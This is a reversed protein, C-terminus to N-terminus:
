KDLKKVETPKTSSSLYDLDLPDSALYLAATMALLSRIRPRPNKFRGTAVFREMLNGIATEFEEGVPGEDNRIFLFTLEPEEAEWSPAAVIRIERLGRYANGEATKKEHKDRIREQIRRVADVFDDPFAFREFKRAIREALERSEADNRVGRIRLKSPVGALVSKEVTMILELNVVLGEAEIAPLLAFTPRWGKRVEELFRKDANQLAALQVYPWETCPKLIDCTQSIVVVGPVKSGISTLTEDDAPSAGAEERSPPSLPKALDAVYVFALHDGIMVDGQQWAEIAKNIETEYGAASPM